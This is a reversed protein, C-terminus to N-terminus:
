AHGAIYGVFIERPMNDNFSPLHEALGHWSPKRSTWLQAVPTALNPEDLSIVRIARFDPFAESRMGVPSGCAACFEHHVPAGSVEGTVINAAPTGRTFEVSLAPCWWNAACAAGTARQCDRCSCLFVANPEASIEYRIAGCACGGTFSTSDTLTNGGWYQSCVLWNIGVRCNLALHTLNMSMFFYRVPRLVYFARRRHM